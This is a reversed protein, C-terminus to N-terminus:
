IEDDSSDEVEETEVFGVLEAQLVQDRKPLARHGEQSRWNVNKFSAVINSRHM